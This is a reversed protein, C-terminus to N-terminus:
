KGNGFTAKALKAVEADVDPFDAPVHQKMEAIVHRLVAIRAAKQNNGDFITWPAHKSDTKAFMDHMAELYAERKARNRFDDATVKWRKAPNELREQLVEDQAEQTVHLFLKIINTGIQHQRLEFENIEDFGRQWEEKTCFGEVREVLVRGYHSRDLVSIEKARPLKNWFRWLFHKEKEEPTPASIPYVQYYHPDWNATLRKIAGGKGAADWGEFVILTRRDHIIHLAQLEALRDQLAALDADYDGDYKKGAEFKSLDITAM